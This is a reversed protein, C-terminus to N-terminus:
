ANRCSRQRHPGKDNLVIAAMSGEEARATGVVKEPPEARQQCQRRVGLPPAVVRFVVAGPVVEVPAVGVSAVYVRGAERDGLVVGEAGPTPSEVAGGLM